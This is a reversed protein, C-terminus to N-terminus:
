NNVYVVHTTFSKRFQDAQLHLSILAQDAARQRRLGGHKYYMAYTLKKRYSWLVLSSPLQFHFKVKPGINTLSILKAIASTTSGYM